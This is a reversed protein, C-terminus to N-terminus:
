ILLVFKGFSLKVHELRSVSAVAHSILIYEAVDWEAWTVVIVVWLSSRLVSLSISFLNSLVRRSFTLM